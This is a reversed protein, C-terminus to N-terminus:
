LLFFFHFPLFFSKRVNMALIFFCVLGRNAGDTGESGEQVTDEDLADLGLGLGGAADEQGLGRDLLEVFGLDNGDAGAGEVLGATTQGHADGDAVADQNGLKAARGDLSTLLLVLEEAVALANKERLEGDIRWNWDIIPSSLNKSYPQCFFNPNEGLDAFLLFRPRFM